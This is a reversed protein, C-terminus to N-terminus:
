KVGLLIKSMKNFHDYYEKETTEAKFYKLIDQVFEVKVNRKEFQVVKNNITSNEIEKKSFITPCFVGSDIEYDPYKIQLDKHLAAVKETTAPLKESDLDINTKCERYYVVKKANDIWVIDFDKKSKDFTTQVGTKGLVIGPQKSIYQLYSQELLTGFKINISQKSLQQGFLLYSVSGKKTKTIKKSALIKTKKEIIDYLNKINKNM